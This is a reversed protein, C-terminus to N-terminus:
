KLEVVGTSGGTGLIYERVEPLLRVSFDIEELYARWFYLCRERNAIARFVPNTHQWLVFM